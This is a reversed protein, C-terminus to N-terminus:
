RRPSRKQRRWRRGPGLTRAGRRAQASRHLPRGACRRACPCLCAAVATRFTAGAYIRCGLSRSRGCSRRAKTRRACRKPSLRAGRQRRNVPSNRPTLYSRRLRRRRSTSGRQRDPQRRGAGRARRGQQVGTAFCRGPKAHAASRLRGAGQEAITTSQEAPTARHRLPHFFKADM